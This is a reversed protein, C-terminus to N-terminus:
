LVRDRLPAGNRFASLNALFHRVLWEAEGAFGGATHPTIFCNAQQWLPHEPPLPEPDTVDLYAAALRGSRLVELLAEQDVTTGRGINYFVATSQMVAFRRADMYRLTMPTEPLLNIVHDARELESEVESEALMRIGPASSSQRRVACISVGFPSLLEAVRRGIAGFGLLLVRQGALLRSAERRAPAPWSRDGLQVALSQPLQRAQALMFALVHEACPSAYVTSSNTLRAGRAGFAGRFSENDYRTYGASTLHVWKLRESGLASGPDPQGFVVDAEAMAPDVGAAVLNSAGAQAAFILRDAGVGARLLELAEGSFHANCYITLAAASSEQLNLDASM